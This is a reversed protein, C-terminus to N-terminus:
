GPDFLPSRADERHAPEAFCRGLVEDWGTTWSAARGTAQSAPAM